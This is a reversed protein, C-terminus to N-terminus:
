NLSEKIIKIEDENLGYLEYVMQDIENDTQEIERLLPKIIALSETFERELYERNKRSKVDVKKKRLEEIFEDESLDYYKELKKSMKDVNFEKEIWHKFGRIEEQLQKNLQLMQDAKKIFPQQQEQTAPYIPLQEVRNKKWESFGSDVKVGILKFIFYTIKSNLITLLYKLNKGTLINAPATTYLEDNSYGFNPGISLNGWLLKEKTFDEYYDCARLEWWYKGQDVRKKLNESYQNLHSKIAPYNEMQVGIPTLIIYLDRYNLLYKKIDRGRVLPKILEASKADESILFDKTKVDIIFAKDYGTKLGYFIKIDYVDKLKAGNQVIKDMLKLIQPNKLTWIGKDLRKQPFEYEDNIIIKNDVGSDKEIVFISPNTTVDKFVNKGTYDIYKLFKNDLILRRLEEDNKTQIFKNSCIFSLIGQNKLLMIGKEFFYVYLDSMGTYVSYVKKLYAKFEKIKGQKVYPPNGICIDFGGNGFIEPFEQEWNFPKDTYTPDDILSNGNKINKDLNPLKLNKKCVKLFLSLKTIEVSEENLDVGYINNLLIERRKEIHDFVYAGLDTHQISETRRKKGKGVRMDITTTYGKKIDFIAEHIELLIDTAKNLFAGSGCAPDVIKINKLKEDLDEIETSWSYEDLLDPIKDAKGSKSLYPIITNRCIYDTIYDPTYFIGEKKRRGKTDEKLEEIDGISNEFIHGLINVDLESSFDFSSITLMNRYIPNVRNGVNGLLHEIDKEYTEFKWDQYTDQFISQDDVIDRIKLSELDEQFLGGNYASIKKFENGENIDLFLENLRQWISRHRINGKQIPTAITDVSVQSPLLGTDEAFCVFMYRNLILQAYHIANLRECGSNTELEKILMLRTENYLKYFESALKRDVLLTEKHIKQIYGSQIHSKFSFTAMFYSFKDKDLLEEAKFSIYKTKEHYNYLRFEDYNSVMIWEVDGTNIAYGFAQEVPSKTDSRSSQKKDLDIGQGKLEIIMFKKDDSQLVFESKGTGTDEKEDFLVNDGPYELLGKLVIDYFRLYNKTESKFVGSDLKSLYDKILDHKSPTLKFNKGYKKLLTQNFLDNKM